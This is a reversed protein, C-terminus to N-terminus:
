VTQGFETAADLNDKMNECIKSLVVEQELNYYTKSYSITFSPLAATTLHLAVNQLGIALLLLWQYNVEV